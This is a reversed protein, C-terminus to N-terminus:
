TPKPHIDIGSRYDQIEARASCGECYPAGGEETIFTEAVTNQFRRFNEPVSDLPSVLPVIKKTIYSQHPFSYCQRHSGVEPWRVSLNAVKYSSTSIQLRAESGMKNTQILWDNFTGHQLLTITYRRLIKSHQKVEAFVM